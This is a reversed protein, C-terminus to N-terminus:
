SVAVTTEGYKEPLKGQSSYRDSTSRNQRFGFQEEGMHKEYAEKLRNM